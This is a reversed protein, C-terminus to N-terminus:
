MVTEAAGCFLNSVIFALLVFITYYIVLSTMMSKMMSKEDTDIDTNLISKQPFYVSSFISLLVLYGLGPILPIIFPMILSGGANCFISTVAYLIAPIAM